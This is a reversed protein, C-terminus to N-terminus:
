AVRARVEWCAADFRVEAAQVYPAFAARVTAIVNERTAVDTQELLLGLPGLRTVYRELDRVPFACTAELPRIDVNEWGAASLLASVKHAEAFAFQGPGEKPRPPLTPLLPAAAREATTMFPNEEASRWAIFHLLGDGRMARRLNVFAAVPDSFFMVGFRSVIRDFSHPEFPYLQANAHLFSARAGERQARARAAELMPRSIDAGVGRGHVGLKRAIAVTTSGTGCGVDLVQLNAGQAIDELLREEFPRLLQDLLAQEDVWAHGAPGDWLATQEDLTRDMNTEKLVDDIGCSVYV